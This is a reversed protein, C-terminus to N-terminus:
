IEEINLFCKISKVIANAIDKQYDDKVLSTAENENTIFGCEILVSPIISERLVVFNSNKIGRDYAKTKEVLNKQLYSCLEKSFVEKLYYYTEIGNVRQNDFANQHISLFLDGGLVSCLKVRDSLDMTIDNIRTNQVKIKNIDKLFGTIHNCISLNIDKELIDNYGKAGLEEGGHGADLVVVYKDKVEMKFYTELPNERNNDKSILINIKYIGEKDPTFCYNNENTYELEEIVEGNREFSVKYLNNKNYSNLLFEIKDNIIKPKNISFKNEIVGYQDNFIFLSDVKNEISNFNVKTIAYVGNEKKINVKTINGNSPLIDKIYYPNEFNLDDYPFKYVVFNKTNEFADDVINFEINEGKIKPTIKIDAFTFYSDFSKFRPTLSKILAINEIKSRNKFDKLIFGNVFFDERTLDVINEINENGQVFVDVLYTRLKKQWWYIINDIDEKNLVSDDIKVVIYNVYGMKSVNLSDFAGKDYDSYGEYEIGNIDEEITRWIYNVGIGFKLENKYSKFKEGLVKIFDNVNQRRWSDKFLKDENYNMYSYSDNFMYKNINEPYGISNLYAGDFKYKTSLNVILNVLYERVEDVGIDLYYENNFKIIWEINNKIFSKEPLNTLYAELNGNEINKLTFDSFCAHIDLSRKFGEKVIINLINEYKSNFKETIHLDMFKSIDVFVTNFGGDKFEDYSKTIYNRMDDLNIDSLSISDLSLHTGRMEYKIEKSFVKHSCCIIQSVVCLFFLLLEIKINKKM